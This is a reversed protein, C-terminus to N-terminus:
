AAAREPQYDTGNRLMAWGMCATKIVLAIETVNARSQEALRVALQSLRKATRLVSRGGYVMLTRLHADSRKSIGFLRDLAAWASFHAGPLVDFEIWPPEM